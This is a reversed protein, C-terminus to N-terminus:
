SEKKWGDSRLIGILIVPLVLLPLSLAGLYGYGKAVLPILGFLAIGWTILVYALSAAINVRRDTGANTSHTRAWWVVIRRAGGFILNVGTSIVALFILFSVVATGFSGGGGHQAIYLAPVKEQLIAPYHLLVGATALWLVGANVVFGWGATRTTIDVSIKDLLECSIVSIGTRIVKAVSDVASELDPFAVLLNVTRGPRPELNLIVKTIVGLTGESGILLQTLSYGWTDKRIRGGLPVGAGALGSGAGRPTVAVRYKSAVAMLASVQETTEPKVVVEPMSTFMIGAEDSAYSELADEDGSLVNKAGVATRIEELIEPTIRGFRERLAETGGFFSGSM